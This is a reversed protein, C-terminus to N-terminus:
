NAPANSAPSTVTMLPPTALYRVQMSICCGARGPPSPSPLASPSQHPSTVKISSTTQLNKKQIDATPLLILELTDGYKRGNAIALVHVVAQIGWDLYFEKEKMKTMKVAYRFDGDHYITATRLPNFCHLFHFQQSILLYTVSFQSLNWSLNKLSIFNLHTGAVSLSM